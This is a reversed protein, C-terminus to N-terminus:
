ITSLRDAATLGEPFSGPCAPLRGDGRGTEKPSVLEPRGFVGETLTCVPQGSVSARLKEEYFARFAEPLTGLDPAEDGAGAERALRRFRAAEEPMRLVRRYELSGGPGTYFGEESLLFRYHWYYRRIKPSAADLETRVAPLFGRQRLEEARPECPGEFDYWVYVSRPGDADKRVETCLIAFFRGRADLFLGDGQPLKERFPFPAKIGKLVWRGEPDDERDRACFLLLDGPRHRCGKRARLPPGAATQKRGDKM